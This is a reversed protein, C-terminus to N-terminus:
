LLLDSSQPKNTQQLQGLKHVNLNLIQVVRLPLLVPSVNTSQTDSDVKRPLFVGTGCGKPSSGLFVAQMGPGAYAWNPQNRTRPSRPSPSGRWPQFLPPQSRSEAAPPSKLGYPRTGLGLQEKPKDAHKLVTCDDQAM